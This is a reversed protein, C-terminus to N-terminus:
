QSRWKQSERERKSAKGAANQGKGGSSATKATRTIRLKGLNTLRSSLSEDPIGRRVASFRYYVVDKEIKLFFFRIKLSKEKDKHRLLRMNERGGDFDMASSVAARFPETEKEMRTRRVPLFIRKVFRKPFYAHKVHLVKLPSKGQAAQKKKKETYIVSQKRPYEPGTEGNPM